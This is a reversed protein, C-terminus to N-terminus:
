KSILEKILKDWAGWVADPSYAKMDERSQAGYQRRLEESEMLTALGEAYAEPTPETLLGNEGDRIITNVACCDACGIVPLGASMAEMLALGQGEYASPFAFISGEKLKDHVENTPGRLYFRDELGHKTILNKVRATVHPEVTFEGWWECIWEPYKDKLLAFAEVLLWPRKQEAVRAVNIITPKSLDASQDYQPSVNSIRVVRTEPHVKKTDVVFEPMLVQIVDSNGVSDKYMTKYAEEDFFTLPNMHFMTVLPKDTGIVSKLIYTAEPQYSIFIDADPIRKLASQISVGISKYKFRSRLIHRRKRNSSWCSMNMWLKSQFFDPKTYANVFRVKESIRFGPEGKTKDVCLATVEYGREVLANAMASFVQETGGKANIVRWLNVLVVHPKCTQPQFSPLM